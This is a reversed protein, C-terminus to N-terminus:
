SSYGLLSNYYNNPHLVRLPVWPTEGHLVLLVPTEVQVRPVMLVKTATAPYPPRWVLRAVGCTGREGM